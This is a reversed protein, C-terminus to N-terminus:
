EHKKCLLYIISKECSSLYCDNICLLSKLGYRSGTPNLLIMRSRFSVILNLFKNLFTVQFCLLLSKIKFVSNLAAKNRQLQAINILIKM